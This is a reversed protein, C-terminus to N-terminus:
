SATRAAIRTLPDSHGDGRDNLNRRLFANLDEVAPSGLGDQAAVHDCMRAADNMFGLVQRSATRAVVLTGPDLPGLTGSPLGEAALADVIVGGVFLGLPRLQPKRVDAVFVPFLTGAHMLLLCKRGGIWLLNAYWDDESPTPGGDRAPREGLLDLLRATCRLVM